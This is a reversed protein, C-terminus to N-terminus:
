NAFMSLDEIFKKGEKVGEFYLNTLKKMNTSTRTVQMKKLPRIVFVKGKRELEEVFDLQENYMKYRKILKHRIAPYKRLLFSPLYFDKELKRYGKNQTLVVVNNTYGENLTHLLPISDCVGGDTMPIGNLYKIPCLIPLSGSAECIDFLKNENRKEEFYEAEGTLCNSIVIVFRQKSASYTAFDFPFTQEPYTRILQKLNIYGRGKLFHGIGIYNHEQLSLINCHLARKKQRAIYSLGNIAGASVGITYPFFLSNEMFADLVGTTFAGRLGGGELILGSNDMNM